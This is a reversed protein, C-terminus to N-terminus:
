QEEPSVRLAIKDTRRYRRRMRRKIKATAGARQFGCLLRRWGTVLDYEDAKVVPRRMTHEWTHLRSLLRMVSDVFSEAAITYLVLAGAGCLLEICFETM